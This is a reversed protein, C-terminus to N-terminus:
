FVFDYGELEIQFKGFPANDIRIRGNKTEGKKKTGDSLTVTYEVGDIAKDDTDVVHVDVNYIFEFDKSKVEKDDLKSIFYYTEASINGQVKQVLPQVDTTGKSQPNWEGTGKGGRTVGNVEAIKEEKQGEKRWVEFQMLRGDPFGQLDVLLKVPKGYPQKITSM